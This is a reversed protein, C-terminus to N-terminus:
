IAVVFGSPLERLAGRAFARELAMDLRAVVAATMRKGGFLALAERKLEARDAGGSQEAIVRM